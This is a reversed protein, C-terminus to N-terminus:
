CGIFKSLKFIHHLLLDHLDVTELLLHPVDPVHYLPVVKPIHGLDLILNLKYFLLILLLNSQELISEGGELVRSNALNLHFQM